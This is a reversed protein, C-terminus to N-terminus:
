KIAKFIWELSDNRMTLLKNTVESYNIKDLNDSQMDIRDSLDLKDLFQKVRIPNQTNTLAVFEKELNVSFAVGHFSDTIVLSANKILAIFDIVSAGLIRKDSEKWKYNSYQITWVPLGLKKSYESIKEKYKSKDGGVFYTLIFKENINYYKSYKAYDNLWTKKDILLTPDLVEKIKKTVIPQLEDIAHKERVSISNFNKLLEKFILTDKEQLKYSGMSTALSIKKKTHGFDLLFIPDLGNSIVPNWLQDSGVVLIDYDTNDLEEKNYYRINSKKRYKDLDKIAKKYYFYRGFITNRILTIVYGKIKNNQKYMLKSQQDIFKNRYDIIEADYGNIEFVKQTAIAQLVAGYNFDTHITVIGIKSKKM